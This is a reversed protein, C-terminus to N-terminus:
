NDARVGAPLTRQISALTAEIRRTLQVTDAGPQKQISVIVASRGNYGADGRKHAPAFAVDAVQRLLVPQGQRYTVVTGRL